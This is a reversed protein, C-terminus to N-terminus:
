QDEEEDRGFVILNIEFIHSNDGACSNLKLPSLEMVFFILTTERAGLM